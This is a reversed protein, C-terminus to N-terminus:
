KINKKMWDTVYKMLEKQAPKIDDRETMPGTKWDIWADKILSLGQTLGDMIEIYEEKLSEKKGAQKAEYAAQVSALTPLGEGFKRDKYGPANSEKLIKKLKM